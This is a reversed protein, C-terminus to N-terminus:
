AHWSQGDAGRHRQIGARTHGRKWRTGARFQGLPCGPTSGGSIPLPGNDDAPSPLTQEQAMPGNTIIPTENNLGNNNMPPLMVSLYVLQMCAFPNGAWRSWINSLM